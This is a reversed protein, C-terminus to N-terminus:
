AGLMALFVPYQWDNKAVAHIVEFSRLRLGAARALMGLEPESFGRHPVPMEAHFSGDETLLDVLALQGDPRLRSVIRVLLGAVDVVHHLMMASYVLDFTETLSGDALLDFCVARVNAQPNAALKAAFQEVMGASADTALISALSPALGLALDGTGCGLELATLTGDLAVHGGLAAIIARNRDAHAPNADWGKARQNFDISPTQNM